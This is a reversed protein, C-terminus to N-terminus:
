KIKDMLKAHIVTRANYSQNSCTSLTLIKDDKTLKIKSEIISKSKVVNIFNEYQSTSSFSTTIYDSNSDTLYVSFVKYYMTDGNKTIIKIANEKAFDSDRFKDLEGFMTNNRMNHGYIVTNFDYFDNNRFDLFISGSLLYNKNIDRNLYYNNDIGQLVPYDINTNNISIWGRYDKNIYSLDLSKGKESIKELQKNKVQNIKSYVENAKKYNILKEGIKYVSVILIMILFINIIIKKM